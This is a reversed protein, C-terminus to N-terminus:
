KDFSLALHQQPHTINSGKSLNENALLPRLNQWNWCIKVQDPNTHDFAACPIIHDVHWKKGYNEWTMGASFQSEIHKVLFESTCGNIKSFKVAKSTLLRTVRTRMSDRLKQAPDSRRERQIKNRRDKAEKSKKYSKAYNIRSEKKSRIRGLALRRSKVDERSAYEANWEKFEKTKRKAADKAKVQDAHAARWQKSAQNRQRRYEEGRKWYAERARSKVQEGHAAMYKKMAIRKREKILEEKSLSDLNMIKDIEQM